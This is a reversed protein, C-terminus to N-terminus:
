APTGFLDNLLTAADSPARVELYLTPARLRLRFDFFPCCQQEAAALAAVEGALTAPLDLLLGNPITTRRAGDLLEHWRRTREGLSDSSLSCAVPAPQPRQQLSEHTPHQKGLAPCQPDCPGSRDPMVDLHQSAQRLSATFAHLEGIRRQAERLRADIRPQLDAKVDACDGAERVSLVEVIEELPLGLHKAAAIFALREVADEGYMRYGAPTREASLLGATEYFRLTTVPVGAREALQSIRM